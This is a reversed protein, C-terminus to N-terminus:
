CRPAGNGALIVRAPSTISGHLDGCFGDEGQDQPQAEGEGGGGGLGVDDHDDAVVLPPRVIPEHAMRVDPSGMEVLQGPAAQVKVPTVHRGGQATRGEGRHRGPEVRELVPDRAVVNIAVFLAGFQVQGHPRCKVLM